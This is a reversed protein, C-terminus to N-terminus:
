RPVVKFYAGLQRNASENSQTVCTVTGNYDIARCMNGENTYLRYMDVAESPKLALERADDENIKSLIFRPDSKDNQVSNCTVESDGTRQRYREGANSECVNKFQDASIWVAMKEDDKVYTGDARLTLHVNDPQTDVGNRDFEPSCTLVMENPASSCAREAILCRLERQDPSSALAYISVPVSPFAQKTKDKAMQTRFADM